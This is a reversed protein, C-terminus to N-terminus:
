DIYVGRHGIGLITSFIGMYTTSTVIATLTGIKLKILIFIIGYTLVMSASIIGAIIAAFIQAAHPRVTISPLKPM